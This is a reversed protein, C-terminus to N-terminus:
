KPYFKNLDMYPPIKKDYNNLEIWSNDKLDEIFNEYEKDSLNTKNNKIIKKKADICQDKTEYYTNSGPDIIDKWYFGPYQYLNSKLNLSQNKKKFLHFDYETKINYKHCFIKLTNLNIPNIINNSYLLDLLKSSNKEYGDYEKGEKNKDELSNDIIDIPNILKDVINIELDLILYRLVEIINKYENKDENVIFTPLMLLLEKNLNKGNEGLGDPRTGRGICQIIDKFSTKSDTIAIYDLKNFDYGMDYKKVVYAISNPNKEFDRVNRFDYSLDIHKLNCKKEQDIRRIDILLYPKIDTNDSIFKRYHKYFLTFANDDRNHFSFGFKKKNDIFNNIIWGSIDLNNVDNELIKCEIPCLWKNSILEKVKIPTYLNGFIEKNELILNKDPSASSFIRNKIFDTDRLLFNIISDNKKNIWNEVTHHAEDFWIFINKIGLENIIDFVKKNSAQPCAVILRKKKKEICKRNYTNFSKNTSCDYILFQNNLINQYKDSTNQKNIKKRPSFIIIIDPKKEEIIKYLIYSKGGGTALELYFKNYTNLLKCGNLIIDKQYNREQWSCTLSSSQNLLM